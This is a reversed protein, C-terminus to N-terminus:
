SCVGDECRESTCQGGERCSSGAELREVCAGASRFGDPDFLGGNDCHFQPQCARSADCPEGLGRPPVCEGVPPSPQNDVSWDNGPQDCWLDGDCEADTVCGSADPDRCIQDICTLGESCRQDFGLCREGRTSVPECVGPDGDDGTCLRPPLCQEDRTCPTFPDDILMGGDTPLADTGGVDIPNISADALSGDVTRDTDDCAFAGAALLGIHLFRLITTQM